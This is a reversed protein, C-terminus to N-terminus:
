IVEVRINMLDNSNEIGEKYKLADDKSGIISGYHMPIVLKPRIVRTAQIAEEFTMVYTGSVPLMAIDIDKLSGYESINDSDGAHFVRLGNFDLIYGVKNDVKPHYVVDPSRFKDLNYAFVTEVNIDFLALQQDPEVYIVEKVRLDKLQDMCENPAIIITNNSIIKKLDSSSCHDFHGHTIFVYDAMVAQSETLNYPDFYIVKSMYLLKFCDHSFHEIKLGQYEM